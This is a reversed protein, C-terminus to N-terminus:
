KVGSLIDKMKSVTKDWSTKTLIDSYNIPKGFTPSSLIKHIAQTFEKANKIINICSSYDRVVDYVPTSIIPKGAAMYELTKTPSIFRTSDNMSFPMMAIDFRKLYNPLLEYEKMGLYHINDRHPLDKTSIKALPGIFVFNLDKLATASEEILKLDIREDIVGYYGIINGKIKDIDEPIHIKNLAKEFHSHDVSSPFCYTKAHHKKKAEFLSKGGTFVINARSLLEKEHKSIEPDAFKFMSLEDMCDYVVKNFRFSDFLSVFAASYFWGTKISNTGIYEQLVAPIEKINNVEPQFVTVFPSVKTVTYKKFNNGSGPVPEEVFLINYIKSLRSIIHQPRQYVFKWRLHSFVILDYDPKTLSPNLFIQKDAASLLAPNLITDM